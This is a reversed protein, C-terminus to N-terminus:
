PAALVVTVTVGRALGLKIPTGPAARMMQWGNVYDAGSCPIGDVATLVDGIKLETKAAPGAPDIWSVKYESQDMETGPPHAAFHIGLDGVPDGRKVRQKLIKIDGIDVTGTGAVNRLVQIFSFESEAFDKPFGRITVPGLPANKISFKGADDTVNDQEDEGNAYFVFNGGGKGIGAMLTIRPVPAGSILEIVRGTLTVVPDLEIEVGTKHEGDALDVTTQKQGHDASATVTFHGAPVDHIAFAGITRFFQERRTFGTKPDHLDLSIEDPAGGGARRVIGELVGTAKIQLRATGGIAVHEAIAEGGGKRFARLTYSGPSLKTVTFTGDTATLVPREDATWRTETVSSRQSGAADSERAAVVFADTVPKGDPDTVSGKISGSQSEVVLKVSGIQAARVTVREGQKTDDNSGPKRLDDSWWGRHALVRYEGPRLGEIKFSGDDSSRVNNFRFTWMNGTTSRASVQVGSVPKGESDSVTGTIAGVDDLVLDKHVTANGAVELKWGDKPGVGRDSSIDVKFTGPRLGELAYTGDKKSTDAGWGTKERAAGGTSRATVRADEVPDGSKTVVRGKIIAGAEVQWELGLLDKDSVALTPYTDLSRYGECGVQVHYTGPLVGNAHLTGDPDRDASAFRNRDSDRFSLWAQKCTTAKDGPIVVRGSIQVAPFLKVIVGDVHQGLGVLTSGESRGYGAASRATVVYRDPSLRSLRFHGKDDTTDGHSNGERYGGDDQESTVAVGAVPVGSKADVVTGSLSSEPTLLIEFKGPASGDDSGSAYGDATATVSIAGPKVWMSFKGQEDTDIAPYETGGSWWGGGARVMAHAIAGGSVDSVIGTIEVGGKRLVLDVGTKHEGAHLEFSTQHEDGDPHYVAPRFPKGMASAVYEAAYLEGIVYHGQDDANTCRPDRQLDGPLDHSSADVCVRAHAIAAHDEDTITGAISAREVKRPDPHPQTAGRAPAGTVTKAASLDKRESETSRWCWFVLALLAVLVVAGLGVRRQM